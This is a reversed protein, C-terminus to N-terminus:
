IKYFTYHNNSFKGKIKLSKYTFTFDANGKVNQLIKELENHLEILPVSFPLCSHLFDLLEKKRTGNKAEQPYIVKIPYNNISKTIKSAVILFEYLYGYGESLVSNDFVEKNIARLGCSVDYLSTRSISNVIETAFLNSYIKTKPIELNEIIRPHFRGGITLKNRNKVHHILLDFADDVSHQGDSDITIVNDSYKFAEVLGTNTAFGVGRNKQLNIVNVQSNNLIHLTDDTSGDNVAIIDFSKQKLEKIVNGINKESNYCPLVAIMKLKKLTLFSEEM